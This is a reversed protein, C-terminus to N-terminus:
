ESWIDLIDGVKLNFYKDARKLNVALELTNSSGIYALPSGEKVNSFTDVIPIKFSYSNTQITLQKKHLPYPYFVKINGYHDIHLVQGKKFEIKILENKSLQTCLFDNPRKSHALQVATKIFIDRGHFTKSVLPGFFAEKIRWIYKIRQKRAAEYLLGNNPGIFWSRTTEIVIGSRSNGVGPDIVGVHITKEPTFESLLAIQFAGEIISFPTVSHNEILNGTFGLTTIVAKLQATAFQDGFDTTITITEM